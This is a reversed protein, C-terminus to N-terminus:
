VRYADYTSITQKRNRVLWTALWAGYLLAISFQWSLANISSRSFAEIQQMIMLATSDHMFGLQFVLSTIWTANSSAPVLWSAADGLLKLWEARGLWGSLLFTTQVFVWAAFIVFPSLWWGAELVVSALTPAKRAPLHQLLQNTFHDASPFGPPVTEDQILESLKKMSELKAHCEPCKELHTEVMRKRNQSLEGDLYAGLWCDYHEVMIM